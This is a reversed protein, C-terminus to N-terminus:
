ATSPPYTRKGSVGPIPNSHLASNYRSNADKLSYHSFPRYPMVNAWRFPMRMKIISRGSGFRFLLIDRKEYIKLFREEFEEDIHTDGSSGSECSQRWQRSLRHLRRRRRTM